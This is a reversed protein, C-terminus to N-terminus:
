AAARRRRRGRGWTWRHMTHLAHYCDDMLVMRVAFEYEARKSPTRKPFPLKKNWGPCDNLLVDIFHQRKGPALPFGAYFMEDMLASIRPRTMPLDIPIGDEDPSSVQM